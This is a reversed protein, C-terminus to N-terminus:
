SPTVCFRPEIVDDRDVEEGIYAGVCPYTCNVSRCECATTEYERRPITYKYDAVKNPDANPDNFDEKAIRTRTATDTDWFEFYEENSACYQSTRFCGPPCPDEGNDRGLACVGGSLGWVGVLVAVGAAGGIRLLWHWCM